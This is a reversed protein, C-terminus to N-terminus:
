ASSPAAELMSFPLLKQRRRAVHLQLARSWEVDFGFAVSALMEDLVRENSLNAVNSDVLADNRASEVMELVESM